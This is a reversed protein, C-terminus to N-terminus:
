DVGEIHVLKRKKGRELPLIEGNATDTLAGMNKSLRCEFGMDACRSISLLPKHIDAVQLNIGKPSSGGEAWLMCQREGLNPITQGNAVEYCIGNISQFSPTLPVSSCAEAPIVSDCAGSDVTLEIQTWEEVAQNSSLHM